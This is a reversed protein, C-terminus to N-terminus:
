KREVKSVGTLPICSISSHPPLGVKVARKVESFCEQKGYMIKMIDVREVQEPGSLIILLLLWM